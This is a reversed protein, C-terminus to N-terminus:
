VKKSTVMRYYLSGELKSTIKLVSRPPYNYHRAIADDYRLLPLNEKKIKLSKLLKMEDQDNLREYVPVIDIMNPNYCLSITRVRHIKNGGYHVQSLIAIQFYRDSSFYAHLCAIAESSAPEKKMVFICFINKCREYNENIYEIKSTITSKDPTNNTDWYVLLKKFVIDSDDDAGLGPGKLFVHRGEGEDYIKCLEDHDRDNCIYGRDKILSCLNTIAINSTIESNNGRFNAM